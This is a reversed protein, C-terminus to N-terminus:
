GFITLTNGIVDKIDNDISYIENPLPPPNGNLSKIRSLMLNSGYKHWNCDYAGHGAANCLRCNRFSGKYSELDVDPQSQQRQHYQCETEIHMSDQCITCTPQQGQLFPQFEEGYITPYSDLFDQLKRPYPVRPITHQHSNQLPESKTIMCVIPRMNVPQQMSCKPPSPSRSPDRHSNWDPSPSKCRTTRKSRRQHRVLEEFRRQRMKNRYHLDMADLKEVREKVKDMTQRYALSLSDEMQQSIEYLEEANMRPLGNMLLRREEWTLHEYQIYRSPPAVHGIHRGQM